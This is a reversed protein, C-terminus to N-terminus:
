QTKENEGIPAHDIVTDNDLHTNDNGITRNRAQELRAMTLRQRHRDDTALVQACERSFAFFGLTKAINSLACIQERQDRCLLLDPSADIIRRLARNLQTKQNEM